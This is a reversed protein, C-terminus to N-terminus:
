FVSATFFICLRHTNIFNRSVDAFSECPCGACCLHVTLSNVQTCHNVMVTRQLNQCRTVCLSKAGDTMGTRMYQCLRYFTKERIRLYGNSWRNVFAKVIIKVMCRKGSLIKVLQFLLHLFDDLFSM